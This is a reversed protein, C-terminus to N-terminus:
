RREISAGPPTCRGAFAVQLLESLRGLDVPKTLHVDFGAQEAQLVAENGGFGTLAILLVDSRGPMSRIRRALDHGSLGPLGVDLIAADFATLETRELAAHPEHFVECLYGDLALLEALSDAADVNDDVILVCPRKPMSANANRAVMVGGKAPCGRYHAGHSPDM